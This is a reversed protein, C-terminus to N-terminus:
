KTELKWGIGKVTAKVGFRSAIDVAEKCITEKLTGNYIDILQHIVYPPVSKKHGEVAEILYKEFAKRKM